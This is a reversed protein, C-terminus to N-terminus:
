CPLQRTCQAPSGWLQAVARGRRHACDLVVCRLVLRTLAAMDCLTRLAAEGGEAVELHQLDVDALAPLAALEEPVSGLNTAALDLRTLATAGRLPALTSPVCNSLRYNRGLELVKLQPLAALERPLRALACAALDLHRLSPISALPCFADGELGDHGECGQEEAAAAAAAAAAPPSHRGDGLRAGLGPNNSLGLFRLAQLAALQLPLHDLGCGSLDLLQLHQLQPLAAGFRGCLPQGPMGLRLRRVAAGRRALWAHIHRLGHGTAEVEAWLASSGALDPHELLARCCSTLAVRCRRACHPRQAAPPCAAPLALLCLCNPQTRM